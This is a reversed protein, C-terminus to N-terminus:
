TGAPLGDKRLRTAEVCLPDARQKIRLFPREVLAYSVSAVLWTSVCCTLAAAAMPLHLHGVVPLVMEQYLYTSYSIRGLYAFPPSDMWAAKGWDVFQVIMVALLLPNLAFGFVDRYALGYRSETAQSLGLLSFTILLYSTRCFRKRLRVGLDTQWMLAVLCGVLIGDIRTELSTYLYPDSVGHFYLITRYAWLSPILFLLIRRLKDLRQHFLLFLGPWVLYFQEEVGLSWTHALLSHPYGHLGQYYNNVYLFSCVATAWVPRHKLATDVVAIFWYVYFAPFLRLARRRYFSRLNITGQRRTELVLLHTILFGSLVFFTLVGLSASVGPVGQHYLIVLLASFARLIDLKPLRETNTM